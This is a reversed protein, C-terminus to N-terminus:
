RESRHYNNWYKLLTYTRSKGDVPKSILSREKICIYFSERNTGSAFDIKGLVTGDKLNELLEDPKIGKQYKFIYTGSPYRSFFRDSQDEKKSYKYPARTELKYQGNTELTLISGLFRTIKDTNNSALAYMSYYGIVTKGVKNQTDILYIKRGLKEYSVGTHFNYALVGGEIDWLYKPWVKTDEITRHAEGYVKRIIKYAETASGANKIQEKFLSFPPLNRQGTLKYYPNKWYGIFEYGNAPKTVIARGEISFYLSYLDGNDKARFNIKALITGRKMNELLDTPKIDPQYEITYSGDSHNLFFKDGLDKTTIDFHYQGDAKLELNGLRRSNDRPLSLLHYNGRLNEDVRNATDILFVTDEDFISFNSKPSYIVGLLYSCTLFGGEIDWQPNPDMSGLYRSPEGYMEVITDLADRYFEVNKLKERVLHLSPTLLNDIMATPKQVNSSYISFPSLLMWIFVINLWLKRYIYNITSM